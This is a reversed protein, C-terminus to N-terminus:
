LGHPRLSNSVASCSVCIHGSLLSTENLNWCSQQSMSDIVLFGMLAPLRLWVTGWYWLSVGLRMSFGGTECLSERGRSHGPCSWSEVSSCNNWSVLDCLVPDEGQHSCLSGEGDSIHLWRLLWPIGRGLGVVKGLHPYTHGVGSRMQDESSWTPLRQTEQSLESLFSKKWIFKIVSSYIHRDLRFIYTYIYIINYVCECVGVSGLTRQGTYNFVLLIWVCYLWVLFVEAEPGINREELGWRTQPQHAPTAELLSTQKANLSEEGWCSVDQSRLHGDLYAYLPTESQSQLPWEWHHEARFATSGTKGKSRPWPWWAARSSCSICNRDVSKNQILSEPNETRVLREESYWYNVALGTLDLARESFNNVNLWSSLGPKCKIYINKM